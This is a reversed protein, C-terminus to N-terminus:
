CDPRPKVPRIDTRLEAVTSQMNDIEGQSLREYLLLM